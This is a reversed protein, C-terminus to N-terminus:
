FFTRIKRNWNIRRARVKIGMEAYSTEVVGCHIREYQRRYDKGKLLEFVNSDVDIPRSIRKTEEGQENQFIVLVNGVAINTM